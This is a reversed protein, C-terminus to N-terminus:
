IVGRVQGHKIARGIGAIELLPEVFRDAALDFQSKEHGAQVLDGSFILLDPSGREKVLQTLRNRLAEFVILFDRKKTPSLHIDSPHLIEM